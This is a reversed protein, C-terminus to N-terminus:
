PLPAAHASQSSAGLVRVFSLGGFVNTRRQVLPSDAFRAGGLASVGIFGGFVWDGRRAWLGSNLTAGAYGGRSDYAPRSISAQDPRVRYYTRNFAADQFKLGLDLGWDVAQNFLTAPQSGRLTPNAIWGVRQPGDRHLGIGQRLPLHLTWHPDSAQSLAIKLVAGAEVVAPLNPMGERATGSSRVPLTGSFSLDLEMGHRQLLNLGVGERNAQLTEGRYVVWPWPAAYNRTTASGLYAPASLAGLGVGLEWLPLPAAPSADAQAWGWPASLALVLALPGAPGPRCTM